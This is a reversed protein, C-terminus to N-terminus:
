PTYDILQTKKCGSSDKIELVIVWSTNTLTSISLEGASTIYIVPPGNLINWSLSYPPTGGSISVTFQNNVGTNLLAEVVCYTEPCDEYLFKDYEAFETDNVKISHRGTHWEVSSIEAQSSALDIKFHNDRCTAPYDEFNDVGLDSYKTNTAVSTVASNNYGVTAASFNGIADKNELEHGFPDYLTVQSAFTWNADYQQWKGGTYRYFPSFSKLLGDKRINSNGEENTQTRGTLYSYSKKPRWIGRTGRVFPNTSPVNTLVDCDCYTKLINGFEIAQANLVRDYSNIQIKDIPDSFSTLTAIPTTQLNKRGSRIVKIEYDQSGTNIFNLPKGYFDIVTIRDPLVQLVWGKYQKLTGSTNDTILLEDGEIFYNSANAILTVGNIDFTRNKFTVGINRSAPGMGDYYWHAPFTLSYVPDNFDTSTETLLVEGTIGDYAKNIIHVTSGDKYNEIEELLGFRQVVKTIVASKFVTEEKSYGPWIMPITVPFIGVIFGDTNFQISGSQMTTTSKRLDSTFDMFVGLEGPVHKGDPMIIEANNVLRSSNELYPVFKFKYFVSNVPKVGGPPPSDGEEQYVKVSKKKGHMDNLEIKFGQSSTFYDYYDIKMISRFSSKSPRKRPSSPYMSTREVITPFDRATYFETVTKGTGHRKIALGSPKLNSVTVKSYGVIPSPFFCEGFPEELYFEDDPALARDESFFVPQRFPNEDNGVMPEYSAVGSSTGDELKYDFQQGYIATQEGSMEYWNDTLIIKDVRSGGGYKNGTPNQLRVWSRNTVFKKGCGSLFAKEEPKIFLEFVSTVSAVLAQLVDYGFNPEKTVGLSLTAVLDSRYKLGFEIAAKIIPCVSIGVGNLNKEVFTLVGYDTGNFNQIEIDDIRAYGSVYDYNEGKMDMLFKFYILDNSKGYDSINQSENLEFVLRDVSTYLDFIQTAASNGQLSGTKIVNVIKFMQMARKNQVYKYRDSSYEIAIKGGSPLTIEKLHWASANIDSAASQEVYPYIPTPIDGSLPTLGANANSKYNGWRDYGRIDYDPNSQESSEDYNFRYPSFRGKEINNYTFYIEKLTLKGKDESFPYHNPLKKCLVYDYVFHVEKVPHQLQVDKKSYLSIKRLLKLAHSADSDIVGEIGTVGRSDNRPELTFIAVYNRTEIKELYWIEKEGYIYSAKDDKPDSKLGENYNAIHDGVPTRWKYDFPMKQYTFHTYNGLDGVSPGKVNDYDIYDPSLVSTLLFSHAYPPLITNSYYNDLGRKNNETDDGPQYSILGTAAADGLIIDDPADDYIGTGVAFTKEEQRKNYAGIGYIYRRGDPGISTFEGIHNGRGEFVGPVQEVAGAMEDRSLFFLSQNRNERKTRYNEKPLESSSGDTGKITALLRPYKVPGNDITFHDATYGGMKAYYQPDSNVTKENAEKFYYREFLPDSTSTHQTLRNIADNDSAWRGSKSDVKVGTVDVGVHVGNGVGVEAGISLSSSPNEVNPDFVHGYDGRFARYAGGIGQGSVSFLDYTSNTVPLAPTNMTFSGDKERNFDMLALEDRQANDSNLYGYAPNSISKSRLEQSSYSGGIMFNPHLSYAELGLTFSGTMAFSTFPMTLQPTYTPTGFDWAAGGALLTTSTRASNKKQEKTDNKGYKTSSSTVSGSVSLQKLGSRTNYSAGCSVGLSSSQSDSKDKTMRQSLGMHPSLTMGNDSSSTIGLGVNAAAGCDKGASFSLNISQEVAVGTYNNYKMAFGLGINLGLDKTDKGVVQLNVGANIGYSRNPRINFKKIVKDGNFDDPLGRMNRNIVGPNLDWGLGVWSAEQDMSIGSHYCINVPYGEVDLLPINYNFDGSFLDVMDTTSVPEFGQVEPQTPGGTLAYAISVAWTQYIMNVVMFIAIIRYLKKKM